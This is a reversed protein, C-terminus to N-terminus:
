LRAPLRGGGTLKITEGNVYSCELVFRVATAFEKPLGFRRPFLIANKSIGRHVRPAWHDTLPTVFPGPALTVVRVGFRACDRAMPLTLSRIAGKSAAYAITSPMGEYAATSTVMIVVGREGDEDEPPVRVLHELLLRSLNFTGTLNVDLHLQWNSISHVREGRADVTRAAEHIGVGACNIVGGLLAGTKETWAVTQQVARELDDLRTIDVRIFLIHDGEFAEQPDARDLVVVRADAEVLDNVTALGLGSAGGSVVFTRNAVKMPAFIRACQPTRPTSPLRNSFYPCLGRCGHDAGHEISLDCQIRTLRIVEGNMYPTSLIWRITQAFEHPQGFRRPYVVGENSLSRRTKEPFNATMNSDFVGPAITVVRIAHRSLDRALPLTMSLLAGKSAAYATQGPQGEFAAASSVMVIVGREGDPGDEPTAKIMHQLALRTLNFTGTVNVALTFDWLDLSHPENHADIIKAATGVGACNIVGGLPANTAAAWEVTGDVAQQIQKLNTIDTEFYKIQSTPLAQPPPARDVISIYADAAILDQVTALGLGSS